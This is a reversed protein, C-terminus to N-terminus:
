KTFRFAIDRDSASEAPTADAPWVAHEDGFGEATVRRPDIGKADILKDVWIAREESIGPNHIRNGSKDANGGIRINATPWAKLIEAINSLHREAAAANMFETHSNRVFDVDKFEFWHNRLDADTKANKYTDSNLFAIVRAETGNGPGSIKVGNPLTFETLANAASQVTTKAAEAVQETKLRAEEALRKAKNKCSRLGFLLLLLLIIAALLWWLWALGGKRKEPVSAPAPRQAPKATTQTGGVHLPSSIGPLLGAFASKEKDLASTLSSMSLNGNLLKGGLFAGLVTSIMGILAGTNKPSMGSDKSIAATFENSRDGMLSHFIRNGVSEHEVDGKPGFVTNLHPLLNARGADMLANEVQSNSGKSALKTLLGALIGSSAKSVHSENEGLTQAAKGLHSDVLSKLSNFIQEM